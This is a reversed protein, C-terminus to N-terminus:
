MLATDILFDFRTIKFDKNVYVHYSQKSWTRRLKGNKPYKSPLALLALLAHTFYINIPILLVSKLSTLFIYDLFSNKWPSIFVQSWCLVQYCQYCKDWSLLCVSSTDTQIRNKQTLDIQNSKPRTTMKLLQVSCTNNTDKFKQECRQCKAEHMQLHQRCKCTSSWNPLTATFSKGRYKGSLFHM